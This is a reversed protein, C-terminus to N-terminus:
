LFNVQLYDLLCRVAGFFSDLLLGDSHNSKPGVACVASYSAPALKIDSKWHEESLVMAFTMQGPLMNEKM